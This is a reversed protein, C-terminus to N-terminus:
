VLALRCSYGPGSASSSVCPWVWYGFLPTYDVMFAERTGQVPLVLCLSSHWGQSSYPYFCTRTLVGQSTFLLHWFLSSFAPLSDERRIATATLEVTTAVLTDTM